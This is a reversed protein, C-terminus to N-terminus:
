KRPRPRANQPRTEKQRERELECWEEGDGRGEWESRRFRRCVTEEDRVGDREFRSGDRQQKRVREIQKNTETETASM